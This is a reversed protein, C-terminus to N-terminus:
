RVAANALDTQGVITALVDNQEEVRQVEGEDAWSLDVGEGVPDLLKLLAVARDEAYRDVADMSM